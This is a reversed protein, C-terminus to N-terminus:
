GEEPYSGDAWMIPGGGERQAPSFFQRGINHPPGGTQLNPHPMGPHPPGLLCCAHRGAAARQPVAAYCHQKGTLQGGPSAAALERKAFFPGRMPLGDRGRPRFRPPVVVDALLLPYLLLM